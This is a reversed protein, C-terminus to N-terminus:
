MFPPGVTPRSRQGRRNRPPCRRGPAKGRGPSSQAPSLPTNVWPRRNHVSSTPGGRRRGAGAACAGPGVASRAGFLSLLEWRKEEGGHVPVTVARDQPAPRAEVATDVRVRDARGWPGVEPCADDHCPNALPTRWTRRLK